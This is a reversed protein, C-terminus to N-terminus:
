PEADVLRQFPCLVSSGAARRTIPEIRIDAHVVSQALRGNTATAPPQTASVAALRVLQASNGRMPSARWDLARGSSLDRQSGLIRVELIAM